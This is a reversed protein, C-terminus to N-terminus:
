HGMRRLPREWRLKQVHKPWAWFLPGVGRSDLSSSADGFVGGCAEELGQRGLCPPRLVEGGDKVFAVLGVAGSEGMVATVRKDCGLFDGEEASITTSDVIAEGVLGPRYCTLGVAVAKTDFSAVGEGAAKSRCCLLEVVAVTSLPHMGMGSAEDACSVEVGGGVEQERLVCNRRRPEVFSFGLPAEWWLQLSFNSNGVVVQLSILLSSGVPHM